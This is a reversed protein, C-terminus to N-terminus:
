PRWVLLDMLVVVVAIGYVIIWVLLHVGAEAREEIQKSNM